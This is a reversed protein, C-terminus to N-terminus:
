EPIRIETQAPSTPAGDIQDLLKRSELYAATGQSIAIQASEVSHRLRRLNTLEAALEARIEPIEDM